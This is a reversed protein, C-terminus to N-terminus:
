KVGTYDPAPRAAKRGEDLKLRSREAEVDKFLAKLAEAKAEFGAKDDLKRVKSDHELFDLIKAADKKGFETWWGYVLTKDHMRRIHQEWDARTAEPANLPRALTHCQSCVHVFVPYGERAKPPYGSADVADPGLDMYFRASLQEPSFKPPAEPAPAARCAATAAAAFALVALRTKM